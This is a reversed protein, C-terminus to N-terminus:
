LEGGEKTPAIMAQAVATTAAELTGRPDDRRSTVARGLAQLVDSLWIKARMWLGAGRALEAIAAGTILGEETALFAAFAHIAQHHRSVNNQEIEPRKPMLDTYPVRIFGVSDTRAEAQNIAGRISTAAAVRAGLSGLNWKDTLYRLLSTHDFQTHEVRRGVWPSVLLAPVRVGLRDFTWEERHDDPPVAAPPEVHDYFGGHEDYTVVLLTSAWLAPSSRIANYVDAILKQAKFVNHPPHDDNQGAGMYKPEIFVFQPFNAENAIDDFLHKILHYRQLNKARRQHTFLLSIPFDYYYIKWSKGAEDLRDFLTDQTQAVFEELRPAKLGEPMLVRGSSTGSLAFFRNPWTPGPLSSFWHDCVTFDRGLRHLAPLRDPAYYGM